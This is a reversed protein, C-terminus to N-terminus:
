GIGLAALRADLLAPFHKYWTANLPSPHPLPHLQITRQAGSPARMDITCHAHAEFRDERAWFDDIATKVAKPQLLGFWLFAERGLTMLNQGQWHEVLLEAILPQFRQKIRTSWAKNGVPKYPVTNAWYFGQGIARSAAFDPLPAGHLRQYLTRRVWQGGAGIFPEGHQVEDRGPDRGFFGVPARADGLGLIPELPDKGYRAYVETDIGTIEAAQARFANRRAASLAPTMRM